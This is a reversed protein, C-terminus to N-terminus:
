RHAAYLDPFDGRDHRTLDPPEVIEVQVADATFTYAVFGVEKVGIVPQRTDPLIFATSPAWAHEIGEVCHRRHQHVHGSAVLRVDAGQLAHALRRRPEPPVYRGVVASEGPDDKFLPKHVFLAVPRGRTRAAVTEVFSWQAAEADLGSGFLQANVGLFVWAGADALWWDEGFNARYRALREETIPDAVDPTWPNDGVDHNGPICLWPVDLREHWGRAFVLDEPRHAGDLTIDGTNVVLDPHRSAILDVTLAFNTVFAHADAALHTDSVHVVRFSSM